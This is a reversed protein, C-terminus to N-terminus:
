PGKIGLVAAIHAEDDRPKNWYADEPRAAYRLREELDQPDGSHQCVVAHHMEDAVQRHAERVLLRWRGVPMAM